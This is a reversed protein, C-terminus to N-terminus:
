AEPERQDLVEVGPVTFRLEALFGDLDELDGPLRVESGSPEVTVRVSRLGPLAAVHVLRPRGVQHLSGRRSVLGLQGEPSLQVAVPARWLRRGGISAGVFALVVLLASTAIASVGWEKSMALFIALFWVPLLIATISACGVRARFDPSTVWQRPHPDEFAAM